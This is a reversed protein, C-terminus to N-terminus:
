VILRTTMSGRVIHLHIPFAICVAIFFFFLLVFYFYHFFGISHLPPCCLLLLLLLLYLSVARNPFRVNQIVTIAPPNRKDGRGEGRERWLLVNYLTIRLRLLSLKQSKSFFTKKYKKIYLFQPSPICLLIVFCLLLVQHLGLWSIM